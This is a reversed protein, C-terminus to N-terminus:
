LNDYLGQDIETVRGSGINHRRGMEARSLESYRPDALERKVVDRIEKTIRNCKIKAQRIFKDRTMLPLAIALDTVPRDGNLVEAVIERAQPVDSPM